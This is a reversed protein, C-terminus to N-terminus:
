QFMEKLRDAGKNEKHKVCKPCRPVVLSMAYKDMVMPEDCLNCACLSNFIFVMRKYHSCGPKICRYVLESGNKVRKYKHLHDTKKTM